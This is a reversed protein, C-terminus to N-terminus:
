EKRVVMVSIDDYVRENGMHAFCSELIVNRMTEASGNRGARAAEILGDVGFERNNGNVAETIGDTYLLLTDGSSLRLERTGLFEDIEDDLGAYMGFDLSSIEEVAGGARLIILSEHQGTMIFSGDGLYRLILLTMIRNDATKRRFDVLVRNIVRYINVINEREVQSLARLATHVMMMVLGSHLGHDTVDGIAIIGYDDYPIIDYYDGGVEEAPIMACSIDLGDLAHYDRVDPLVVTQIHQAVQLEHALRLNDDKLKDNLQAIEVNANELGRRFLFERKRIRQIAVKFAFSLVSASGVNVFVMRFDLDAEYGANFYVVVYYGFSLAVVLASYSIPIPLIACYIINIFIWAIVSSEHNDMVATLHAMMLAGALSLLTSIVVSHRKLRPVFSAAALLPALVVVYLRGLLMEHYYGPFNVPDSFLVLYLVMLLSAPAVIRNVKQLEEGREKRYQQELDDSYIVRDM